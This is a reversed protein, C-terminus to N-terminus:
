AGVQGHGHLTGDLITGSYSTIMRAGQRSPIPIPPHILCCAEEPQSFKQAFRALSVVSCFCIRVRRGGSEVCAQRHQTQTQITCTHPTHTLRDSHMM